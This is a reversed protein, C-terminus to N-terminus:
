QHKAVYYRIGKEVVSRVNKALLATIALQPTTFLEVYPTIQELTWKEKTKFLFQLRDTLNLPMNEEFLGRVNPMQSERDIIGIGSLYSEKMQMGETLAGQCTEIFEDIHFKLGEQLVNQAIIRCVMDERYCFKGSEPVKETYYDFVAQTIEDPFIGDLAAVTESRDVEDLRWSNEAILSMMLTVVRYEYGYELLRMFGNIKICRLKTLLEDFEGASCQATDFLQRRTFLSKRDVDAENELGTYQTLRLLEQIKRVRPKTQRCEFYDYFIKLIQKHQIEREVLPAQSTENEEDELSKDLSKNITNFQPSKLPSTSTEQASLFDPIVVLSNSQEANRVDYTKSGTCLVVKENLAGKFSLEAGSEIEALIEPSLELM